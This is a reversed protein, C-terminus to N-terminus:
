KVKIKTENEGDEVIYGKAEIEQRLADSKQWNKAQRATERDNLLSQIETPLELPKIAALGLGFVKDFELWTAKEDAPSISDAGRLNLEAPIVALARPINLDDNISEIFQGRLDERVKGGDPANAVRSKITALRNQAGEVAEWTFNMPSRYHATLLWYRYALPSISYKRLDKLTYTNGLSKAMKGNEVRVFANHLWFNALPKGYAAESQAIENKHHVPIHDSGGTHIDFPQGLYEASMASCEIHWGPFGKGLFSEFGDENPKAFKWLAFDLHNKKGAIPTVRAFEEDWSVKTNFIQNYRDQGFTTVDFYIGDDTKYAFKKQLLLNIIEIDKEIHESARPLHDPSIINLAKLDDIFYNAYKEAVQKMAERTIPLNERRLAKVMKDEGADGDSVLHGVDTINIVQKVQYNNYELTRRLLDSFVYSRLNGIHAYDYVTPGCSYLGIEKEHLPKFDQMSRGLTNYLKLVM